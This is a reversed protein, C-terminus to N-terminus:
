CDLVFGFSKCYLPALNSSSRTDLVQPGTGCRQLKVRSKELERYRSFRNDRVLNIDEVIIAECYYNFCSSELNELM